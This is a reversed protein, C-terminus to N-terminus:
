TMMFLDALSLQNPDPSGRSPPPPYDGMFRGLLGSQNYQTNSMKSVHDQFEQQSVTQLALSDPVVLADGAAWVAAVM